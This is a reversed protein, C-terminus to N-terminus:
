DMWCINEGLENITYIPEAYQLIKIPKANKEVWYSIFATPRREDDMNLVMREKILVQESQPIVKIGQTVKIITNLDVPLTAPIAEFVGVYKFDVIMQAQGLYPTFVSLKNQLHYKLQEFKEFESIYIRYVPDKILELLIQTRQNHGPRTDLYNTALNIKRIPNMVRVAIHAIDFIRLHESSASSKNEIGLIAGLLGCIATRPPFCYSTSSTTTYSRRFLAYKGFVDFVLVKM